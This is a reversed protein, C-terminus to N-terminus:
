GSQEPPSETAKAAHAKAKNKAAKKECKDTFHGNGGCFMCLKLDYHRKHEAATLKGDKGLKNTLEPNSLLTNTSKKDNNNSQSTLRNFEIVYKNICQGDKMQLHDLHNKADTVLNHPGFMSQLEIVFEKWDDMWLPHDEPNSSSLLDPEFWKLAMGKLYSQAFTVKSHDLHFVHPHDQFNLKCQVLFTHLKKPDTGNFTDLKRVRTKGSPTSSDENHRTACALNKIAHGLAQLVNTAEDIDDNNNENDGNDNDNFPDDGPDDGGPNGPNGPCFPTQPTVTTQDQCTLSVGATTQQTPTHLPPSSPTDM